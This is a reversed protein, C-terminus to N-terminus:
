DEILEVEIKQSENSDYFTAGKKGYTELDCTKLKGFYDYQTNIQLFERFAEECNGASSTEFVEDIQITEVGAEIEAENYSVEGKITYVAM